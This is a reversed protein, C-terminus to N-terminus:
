AEEKEEEQKKKYSDEWRFLKDFCCGEADLYNCGQRPCDGCNDNLLFMVADKAEFENMSAILGEVTLEGIAKLM